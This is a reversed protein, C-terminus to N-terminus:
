YALLSHQYVTEGIILSIILNPSIERNTFHTIKYCLVHKIRALTLLIKLYYIRNAVHSILALLGHVQETKLAIMIIIKDYVVTSHVAINAINNYIAINQIAHIYTLIMLSLESM